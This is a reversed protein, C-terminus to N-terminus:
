RTIRRQKKRCSRDLRAVGGTESGGSSVGAEGGQRTWRAEMANGVTPVEEVQHLVDAHDVVVEM